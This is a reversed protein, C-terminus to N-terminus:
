DRPQGKAREIRDAERELDHALDHLQEQWPNDPTRTAVERCEKARRRFREADDNM